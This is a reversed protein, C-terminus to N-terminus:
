RAIEALTDAVGLRAAWSELYPVDMSDDLLTRVDRRQLESGSDKAWVLKSLILDERSVIWTKVGNLEVPRRRAFEVQRYESDKRVILDVKISTALHMLNFLRQSAVASRANDADVYFDPLLVAVLDGVDDEGLAVVIDLDRTMRPKGYYAMAFSGTLMFPLQAGELRESVIRLVELEELM